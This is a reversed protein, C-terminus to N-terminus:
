ASQCFGRQNNFKNMLYINHEVSLYKLEDVVQDGRLLSYDRHPAAVPRGPRSQPSDPLSVDAGLDIVYDEFDKLKNYVRRYRHEKAADVNDLKSLIVNFSEELTYFNVIERGRRDRSSKVRFDAYILLLSEVSLNDLELDWTSYAASSQILPM